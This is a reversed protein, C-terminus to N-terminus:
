EWDVGHELYELLQKATMGWLDYDNDLLFQVMVSPPENAVHSLELHVAPQIGSRDGSFYETVYRTTAPPLLRSNHYFFYFVDDGDRDKWDFVIERSITPPLMLVALWVLSEATPGSFGYVSGVAIWPMINWFVISINAAVKSYRCIPTYCAYIANNALMFISCCLSGTTM